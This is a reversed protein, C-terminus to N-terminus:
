KFRSLSMKIIKFKNKHLYMQKDQDNGSSRRDGGFKMRGIRDITSHQTLKVERMRRQLLIKREDSDAKWRDDDKHVKTAFLPNHALVTRCFVRFPFGRM